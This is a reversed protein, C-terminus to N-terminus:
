EEFKFRPISIKSVENLIEQVQRSRLEADTKIDSILREMGGTLNEIRQLSVGSQTNKEKAAAETEAIKKQELLSIKIEDVEERWASFKGLKSEVAEIIKDHGDPIKTRRILSLLCNDFSAPVIKKIEEVITEHFPRFEKKEKLM